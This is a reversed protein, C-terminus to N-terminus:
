RMVRSFIGAKSTDQIDFMVSAIHITYGLIRIIGASIKIRNIEHITCCKLM